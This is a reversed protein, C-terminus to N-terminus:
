LGGSASSVLRRRSNLRDFLFLGSPPSPAEETGKPPFLSQYYGDSTQMQYNAPANDVGASQSNELAENEALATPHWILHWRSCSENPGPDSGSKETEGTPRRRSKQAATNADGRVTDGAERDKRREPDEGTCRSSFFCCISRMLNMTTIRRKLVRDTPSM